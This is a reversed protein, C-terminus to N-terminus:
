RSPAGRSRVGDGDGLGDDRGARIRQGARVGEDAHGDVGTMAAGREGHFTCAEGTRGDLRHGEVPHVTDSLRDRHRDNAAPADHRRLVGELKKEGAGAGHLDARGSEHVRAGRDLYGDTELREQGFGAHTVDLFDNSRRCMCVKVVRLSRELM